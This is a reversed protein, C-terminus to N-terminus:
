VRVLTHLKCLCHTSWGWTLLAHTHMANCSCVTWGGTVATRAMAGRDCLGFSYSKCLRVSPCACECFVAGRRAVFLRVEEGGGGGGGNRSAAVMALEDSHQQQHAEQKELPCDVDLAANLATMDRELEEDTNLDEDSGDGGDGDDGDGGGDGGGGEAAEKARQRALKARRRREAELAIRVGRDGQRNHAKPRPKPVPLVRTFIHQM